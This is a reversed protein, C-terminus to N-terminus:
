DEESRIRRTRKNRKEMADLMRLLLDAFLIVESALTPDDFNVERHSSPNKFVGLAGAFLHSTAEREGGDQELDSLPGNKPDFAKRVMTTGFDSEPYGALKRVRIEVERMAAFGAVECEGMLFQRPIRAALRKHLDVDIRAEARLVLLARADAALAQGRRTVYAHGNISEEGPQMAVLRNLVLWDWAEAMAEMFERSTGAEGLEQSWYSPNAVMSRSLLHGQGDEIVLRLLRLGLDDPPLEVMEEPTPLKSAIFPLACLSYRPPGFDLKEGM